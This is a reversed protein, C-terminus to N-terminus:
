ATGGPTTTRNTSATDPVYVYVGLVDASPQFTVQLGRRAASASRRVRRHAALLESAAAEGYRDLEPQIRDLDRVARDAYQRVHEEMANATPEADLLQAVEPPTLWEPASASGRYALVRAEEAVTPTTGRGPLTLHHRLRVLLLTTRSDVATTRIVGCRRALRRGGAISGDLSTDLVWQALAVVRPDSRTLSVEGIREAGEARFTLELTRAAGDLQLDRLLGPPLGTLDATFDGAEEKPEEFAPQAIASSGAPRRRASVSVEERSPALRMTAGLKTLSARVFRIVDDRNGIAQRLADIEQQMEDTHITRQAYRTQAKSEREAADRWQRELAEAAEEAEVDLTLQREERGRLLVGQVLAQVLSDAAEPVPVAVGTAKQIARHKRLLVELVVGDIGNDEGYLTVARVYTSRQGFRDVRGERQELRTPNWPLDYHVVAQFGHQLNVGESLCDTAVLVRRAAPNQTLTAIRDEREKPPLLGTVHEVTIKGLISKLYDAVYQATPIYRCFVIPNYGATILQKVEKGVQLLKRDHEPGALQRAREAFRRLRKREELIRAKDRDSLESGDAGEVATLPILAETADGAPAADAGEDTDDETGDLVSARGLREAEVDTLGEVAARTELTAAAALPSSALSRLLALASWWRIRDRTAGSSTRVTERAYALVDELLDAYEDHMRFPVDRLFRTDPFHTEEQLYHKIDRRRRQVFFKALRMRDESQSPDFSGSDPAFQPDLLGILCRFSEEKGSHPTATVLIIHRQPSTSLETLLEYRLQRHKGARDAADPVCTHAEDVIVLEPASRLFQSRRDERKIFDTSVITFRYRSFLSEAGMLDRELKKVTSPLVLAAEIGFKDRLEDQWQRALAPPCLVSFRDVQGQAVLEKAILGSEVTKGIGVDDAILLRTVDMSMSMMLPVLQYRRPEFNLQALSRFPGASDRFGIQLATRLLGASSFDGVEDPDTSPRPFSSDEVEEVFLGTTFAADGGLPRAVLFDETVKEVVWDRGRAAVLNGTEYKTM